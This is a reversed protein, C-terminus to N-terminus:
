WKKAYDEEAEENEKVYREVAEAQMGKEMMIADKIEYVKSKVNELEGATIGRVPTFTMMNWSIQGKEQPESAFRTLFAPPTVTRTYKLFSYMSSGHLNLQFVEEGILVYVIRNDKLKSKEKGDGDVFKYMEKLEKPTGKAVQKKDCFLPIVEDMSDFIPSSTYKETSEDYYSLQYRHYLIIGETVTGIEEKKWIKKGEDNLEESEREIIFTGAEVTVKKNKGTGEMQDQSIFSLRPLMIRKFGGVETPYLDKLEALSQQDVIALEKKNTM